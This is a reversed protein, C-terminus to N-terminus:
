CQNAVILLIDHAVEKVFKLSSIKGEYLTRYKMYKNRVIETKPLKDPSVDRVVFEQTTAKAELLLAKTFHFDFYLQYIHTEDIVKEFQYGEDFAEMPKCIVVLRTLSKRDWSSSQELWGESKLFNVIKEKM